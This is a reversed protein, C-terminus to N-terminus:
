IYMIYKYVSSINCNSRITSCKSDCFYKCTHISMLKKSCIKLYYQDDDEDNNDDHKKPDARAM